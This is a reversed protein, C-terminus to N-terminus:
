FIIDRNTNNKIYIEFINSNIIYAYIDLDDLNIFEFFLDKNELLNLDDKINEIFIVAYINASIVVTKNLDLNNGPLIPSSRILIFVQSVM